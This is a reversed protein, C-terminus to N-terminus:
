PTASGHIALAHKRFARRGLRPVLVRVPLPAPALMTAVVEPAGEYMMMGFVLATHKRPIGNRGADGLAAWEKPTICRAVLPLVRAEEADLHESLGAYLQDYCDALEKGQAAAPQQAWRPRLAGIRVLLHDVQEHQAEMLRVIPALEDAVRDLLKPWLLEDEATHHHHLVDEILALHAAVEAARRVDGAPVGRVLGGALRMERRFLSHIVLMERTDLLPQQTQIASM